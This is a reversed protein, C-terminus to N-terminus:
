FEEEIEFENKPVGFDKGIRNRFVRYNKTYIKIQNQLVGYDVISDSDRYIDLYINSGVLGKNFYYLLPHYFQGHNTSMFVCDKKIGGYLNYVVSLIDFPGEAVVIDINEQSITNVGNSITYFSHANDEMGFINYKVYRYKNKGTIDRLLLYENKVSLWGIYDRDYLPILNKFKEIVSIKNVQLFEAISFVLKLQNYDEVPINYGIRSNLYRIKQVTSDTKRPPSIIVPIVRDNRYKNVRATESDHLSTKNIRKLLPIEEADPGIIEALIDATLMGYAGCNFCIYKVPESDIPDCLIYFRKKNPDKKSDGCLRCQTKVRIASVDAFERIHRLRNIFEEKDKNM